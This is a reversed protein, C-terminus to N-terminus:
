RTPLSLRALHKLVSGVQRWMPATKYPLGYKKCIQEVEGSIALYRRAPLDPFLHHEIHLSLNGTMLHMLRGGRINSSTVIQRVYWMPRTEEAVEDPAIVVSGDPFHGCAIVSFAWINRVVNAAANGALTSLFLPGTLAPFLVYDKLVQRAAKAQFQKVLLRNEEPTRRGAIRGPIDLGHAAVGWEFLTGLIASYALNGLYYPRWRQRPTARFSGYGLDRDRRLINTSAHHVVNHTYRWQEAPCVNDWEFTQSNIAPDRMWDYQGHMVNHGIEMNDIIKAVGLTVVGAVWAPPFFGLYFQARGAIALWRQASIVRRIYDADAAGLTQLERHFLADLERGLAEIQEPSLDHSLGYVSGRLGTTVPRPATNTM